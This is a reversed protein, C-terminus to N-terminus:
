KQEKRTKETIYIEYLWVDFTVKPYDPSATWLEILRPVAEMFCALAIKEKLHLKKNKATTKM